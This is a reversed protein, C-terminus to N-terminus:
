TPVEINIKSHSSVTDTHLICTTITSDSSPLLFSVSCCTTPLAPFFAPLLFPLINQKLRLFFNIRQRRISTESLKLHKQLLLAPFQVIDGASGQQTEGLQTQIFYFFILTYYTKNEISALLGWRKKETWLFKVRQFFSYLVQSQM